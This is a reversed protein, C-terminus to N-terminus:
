IANDSMRSKKIEDDKAIELWWLYRPMISRISRTQVLRFSYRSTDYTIANVQYREKMRFTPIM